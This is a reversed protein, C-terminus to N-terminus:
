DPTVALVARKSHADLCLLARTPLESDVRNLRKPRCLERAHTPPMDNELTLGHLRKQVTGEWRRM